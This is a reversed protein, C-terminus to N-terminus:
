FIRVTRGFRGTDAVEIPAVAWRAARKNRNLLCGILNGDSATMPHKGAIASHHTENQSVRSLVSDAVEITAVRWLISRKRETSSLRVLSGGIATTLDEDATVACFAAPLFSIVM